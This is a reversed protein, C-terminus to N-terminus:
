EFNKIADGGEPSYWGSRGSTSVVWMEVLDRLWGVVVVVGARGQLAATM